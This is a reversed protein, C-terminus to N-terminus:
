WDDDVNEVYEGKTERIGVALYLPLRLLNVLFVWMTWHALRRSDIFLKDDASDYQGFREHLVQLQMSYKYITCFVLHVTRNRIYVNKKRLEFFM